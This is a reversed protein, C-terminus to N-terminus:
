RTVQGGTGHAPCAGRFGGREVLDSPCVCVAEQPDDLETPPLEGAEIRLAAAAAEVTPIADVGDRVERLARELLGEAITGFEDRVAVDERFDTIDTGRTM